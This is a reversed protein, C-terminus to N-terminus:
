ASIFSLDRLAQEINNFPPPRAKIGKVKILKLEEVSSWIFNQKM